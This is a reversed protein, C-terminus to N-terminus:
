KGEEIAITIAGEGSQLVKRLGAIEEALRLMAYAQMYAATVVPNRDEHFAERYATKIETLATPVANAAAADVNSGMNSNTDNPMFGLIQRLNM